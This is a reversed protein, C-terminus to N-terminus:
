DYYEFARTEIEYYKDRINSYKKIWNSYSDLEYSYSTHSESEVKNEVYDYHSSSIMNENSDYVRHIKRSISGDADFHKIIQSNATDDYIKIYYSLLEISDFAYTSEKVLRSKEDYDIIMMTLTDDSYISTSVRIVPNGISDFIWDFDMSGGCSKYFDHEKTRGDERFSISNSFMIHNDDWILKGDILDCSYRKSKM